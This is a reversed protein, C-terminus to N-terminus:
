IQIDYDAGKEVLESYTPFLNLRLNGKAQAINKLTELDPHKVKKLHQMNKKYFLYCYIRRRTSEENEAGAIRLSDLLITKPNLNRKPLDDFRYFEEKDRLKIGFKHYTSFATKSAEKFELPLSFIVEYPSEFYIKANNPLIKFQEQVCHSKYLQVFQFLEGWLVKNPVIRNQEKRLIQRQLFRRLYPYLSPKKIDLAQALDSLTNNELNTLTVLIPIGENKLSEVLTPDDNLLNSLIRAFRNQSIITKKGRKELFGAKCLKNVYTSRLSGSLFSIDQNRIQSKQAVLSIIRLESDNLKM